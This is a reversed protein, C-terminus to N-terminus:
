FHSMFIFGELYRIELIQFRWIINNIYEKICIM